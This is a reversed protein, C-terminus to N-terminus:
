AAPLEVVFVSGKSPDGKVRDEVYISGGYKDVIVRVISLGVGAGRTTMTMREFISRKKDDPVGVGRDAISVAWYKKNDGLISKVTVEILKRPHPDYKVANELVHRFIDHVYDDAIIFPKEQLDLRIDATASAKQVTEADKNLVENLDMRALKRGAYQRILRVKKIDDILKNSGTVGKQAKELYTRGTDDQSSSLQLLEIYGMTVQNFNRIDHSMLDVYFEAENRAAEVNKMALSRETADVAMLMAGGNSLPVATLDYYREQGDPAADFRYGARHVTKGHRADALMRVPAEDPVLLSIDMGEAPRKKFYGACLDSWAPNFTLIKLEGDVAIIGAPVSDWIEGLNTGAGPRAIRGSV